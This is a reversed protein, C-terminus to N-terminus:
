ITENEKNKFNLDYFYNPLTYLSMRLPISVFVCSLIVPTFLFILCHFLYFLFGTLEEKAPKIENPINTSKVESINYITLISTLSIISFIFIIYKIPINNFIKKYEFSFISKSQDNSYCSMFSFLTFFCFLMGFIFYTSLLPAQLQQQMLQDFRIM